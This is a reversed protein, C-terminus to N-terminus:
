SSTSNLKRQNQYIQVNDKAMKKLSKKRRGGQRKLKIIVNEDKKIQHWSSRQEQMRKAINQPRRKSASSRVHNMTKRYYDAARIVKVIDQLFKLVWLLVRTASRWNDANLKTKVEETKQM